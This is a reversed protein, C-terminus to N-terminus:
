GNENKQLTGCIEGLFSAKNVNEVLAYVDFAFIDCSVMVAKVATGSAMYDETPNGYNVASRSVKLKGSEENHENEKEEAPLAVLGLSSFLKDVLQYPLKDAIIQFALNKLASSDLDNSAVASSDSSIAFFYFVETIVLVNTGVNSQVCLPSFLGYFSFCMNSLLYFIHNNLSRKVLWHWSLPHLLHLEGGPPLAAAHFNGNSLALIARLQCMQRYDSIRHAAECIQNFTDNLWDMLKEDCLRLM